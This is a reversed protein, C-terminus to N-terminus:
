TSKTESVTRSPLRRIFPLFSTLQLKISFAVRFLSSVLVGIMLNFCHYFSFVKITTEIERKDKTTVEAVTEEITETVEIMTVVEVGPAMIAEVAVVVM